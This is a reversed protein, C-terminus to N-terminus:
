AMERAGNRRNKKLTVRGSILDLTKHMSSWQEVTSSYGLDEIVKCILKVYLAAELKREFETLEIQIETEYFILNM